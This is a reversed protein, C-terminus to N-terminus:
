GMNSARVSFSTPARSTKGANSTSTSLKGVDALVM